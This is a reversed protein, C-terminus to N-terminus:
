VKFEEKVEQIKKLKGAWHEIRRRVDGRDFWSAEALEQALEVLHEKIDKESWKEGATFTTSTM